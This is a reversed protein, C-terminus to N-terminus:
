YISLQFLVLIYTVIVGFTACLFQLNITFIGCVSFEVVVDKIQSTFSNIEVLIGHTVNPCLQIKHTCLLIKHVEETVTHCCSILWVYMSFISMSWFLLLALKMNIDIYFTNVIDHLMFLPLYISPIFVIIVSIIVLLIPIGFYANIHLLVDHLQSYIKRMERIKSVSVHRINLDVIFRAASHVSDSNSNMSTDETILLASLRSHLCRYRSRLVLVLSIYQFMISLFITNCLSRLILNVCYLFRGNFFFYVMSIYNIGMILVIVMLQKITRSKGSKYFTERYDGHILHKDIECISRLIRPFHQRYITANLILTVISTSYHSFVSAFWMARIVTPFTSTNIDSVFFATICFGVLLLLSLTTTLIAHSSPSFTKNGVREGNKFAFQALGLLKSVYYIPKIEFYVNYTVENNKM